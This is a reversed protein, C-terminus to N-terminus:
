LVSYLGPGPSLKINVKEKRSFRLQTLWNDSQVYLFVKSRCSSIWLACIGIWCEFMGNRSGNNRKHKHETKRRCKSAFYPWQAAPPIKEDESEHQYASTDLNGHCFTSDLAIDHSKGFVWSLGVVWMRTQWNIDSNERKRRPQTLVASAVADVTWHLQTQWWNDVMRGDPVIWVFRNLWALVQTLRMKVGQKHHYFYEKMNGRMSHGMGQRLVDKKSAKIWCDACVMRFLKSMVMLARTWEMWTMLAVNRSPWTRCTKVQRKLHVRKGKISCGDGPRTYLCVKKIRKSACCLEMNLVVLEEIAFCICLVYFNASLIVFFKIVTHKHTNLDKGWSQSTRSPPLIM